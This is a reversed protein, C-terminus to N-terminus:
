IKIILKKKYLWFCLYWEVGVIGIYALLNMIGETLGFQGMLGKIFLPVYKNLYLRGVTRSFVYIFISNMGVIAFFTVWKRHGRVDVLWYLFIFSLLCWGGSVIVFSSTSIHKNIPTIGALDMYYGILIALVGTIAIIRVPQTPNDSNMIVKGTLVGWIVHATTPLFNIAVWGDPHTKGMLLLDIFTGLNHDKVFPQDFGNIPVYRYSLETILLLCLSIIIQTSYSTRFIIFSIFISISLQTLINWLEWVPKERYTIQLVIGLFFLVSCRFLIHRFIKVWSIGQELRKRLSFAMAIGVIFTFYPQILDWFNMGRWQAHYFQAAIISFISNEPVAVNLFYYFNTGELILLFMTLGRFLDLSFLRDNHLEPM